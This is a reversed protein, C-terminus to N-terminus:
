RMTPLDMHLDIVSSWKTGVKGELSSPLSWFFFMLDFFFIDLEKESVDVVGYQLIASQKGQSARDRGERSGSPSKWECCEPKM